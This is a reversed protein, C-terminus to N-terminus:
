KRMHLQQGADVKREHDHIIKGTLVPGSELQTMDINSGKNTFRGRAVEVQGENHIFMNINKIHTKYAQCRCLIFSEGIELGAAQDKEKHLAKEM